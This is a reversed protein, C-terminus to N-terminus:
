LRLWYNATLRWECCNWSSQSVKKNVHLLRADVCWLFVGICSLTSLGTQLSTSLTKQRSPSFIGSKEPSKWLCLRVNGCTIGVLLLHLVPLRPSCQLNGWHPRPYLRLQLCKQMLSVADPSVIREARWYSNMITFPWAEVESNWLTTYFVTIFLPPSFQPWIRWTEEQHQRGFITFIPWHKM